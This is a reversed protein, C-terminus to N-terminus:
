AHAYYISKLFESRGTSQARYVIICRRTTSCTLCVVSSAGYLYYVIASERARQSYRGFVSAATVIRQVKRRAVRTRTDWARAVM